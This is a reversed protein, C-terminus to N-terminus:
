LNGNLWQAVGTPSNETEQHNLNPLNYIEPFKDM